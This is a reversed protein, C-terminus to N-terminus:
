GLLAMKRLEKEVRAVLKRLTEQESLEQLEANPAACIM